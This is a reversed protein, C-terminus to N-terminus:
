ELICGDREGAFRARATWFLLARSTVTRSAGDVEVEAVDPKAETWARCYAEDRGLVFLCSCTEKARYAAALAPDGNHYRGKVGPLVGLFALAATAALALAALLAGAIRRARRV